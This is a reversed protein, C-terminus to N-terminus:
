KLLLKETYINNGSKVKILYREAAFSWTSLDIISNKDRLNINKDFVKRGNLEFISVNATQEAGIDIKLKRGSLVKIFGKTSKNLHQKTSTIDPDYQFDWIGFGWTSFRFTNTSPIYSGHCGDFYPAGNQLDGAADFWKKQNLDFLYPGYKTSAMAIKGDKDGQMWRLNYNPLGIVEEFTAGGDTSLISTVNNKSNGAFLITNDDFAWGCVSAGWDYTGDASNEASMGVDVASGFSEGGDISKYVKNNDLVWFISKDKPSQCMAAVYGDNGFEKKTRSFWSGEWKVKELEENMIWITNQYDKLDFWVNWIPLSVSWGKNNGKSGNFKDNVYLPFPICIKNNNKYGLTAITWGYEGDPGSACSVGDGGPAQIVQVMDNILGSQSTQVGQDQTGLAFDTEGRHGCVMGWNYTETVASGGQLNCNYMGYSDKDMILGNKHAVRSIFLGGDSAWLSFENGNKDLWFHTSQFDVHIYKRLTPQQTELSGSNGQYNGWQASNEKITNLGDDSVCPHTYGAIVYDPNLPSVGLNLGAKMTAPSGYSTASPTKKTWSLGGDTSTWYSVNKNTGASIYFRRTDGAINCQVETASGSITGLNTLSSGDLRKFDSGHLVYLEGYGPQVSFMPSYVRANMASGLSVVESFNVGFDDSKYLSSGDTTYVINSKRNVTTNHLVSPLGSSKNWTNGDDDSYYVAGKQVTAIIYKKGNGRIVNLDQWVQTFRGSGKLLAFDDGGSTNERNRITGKYISNTGYYHGCTTAYVTDTGVEITATNWAGPMNYPGRNIWKGFVGGRALSVRGQPALYSVERRHRELKENIISLHQAAQEKSWQQNKGDNDERDFEEDEVTSNNNFSEARIAGPSAMTTADNKSHNIPDGYKKYFILITLLLLILFFFLDRKKLADGM